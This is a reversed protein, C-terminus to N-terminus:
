KSVNSYLINTEISSCVLTPSTLVYFLAIIRQKDNTKSNRNNTTSAGVNRTFKFSHHGFRLQDLPYTAICPTHITLPFSSGGEKWFLM